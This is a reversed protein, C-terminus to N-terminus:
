KKKKFVIQENQKSVIMKFFERLTEYEEPMFLTREFKIRSRLSITTGSQSIRYEFYASGQDDLKAVLQKPLEDVAYGNPVEMTLLYTEDSTYPMEVPYTRESATFPNKRYGETFMPNIYLIDDKEPNLEIGYHLAVPEELNVLSDIHSDQIAIDLGFEKKIDKFFEEQGKEKIKDRVKYSEFYGLTQNVNGAWKGKEDNTIFFSTVKREKISDTSLNVAGALENVV